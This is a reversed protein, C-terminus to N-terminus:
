GIRLSKRARQKGKNVALESKGKGKKSGSVAGKKLPDDTPPKSGHIFTSLENAKEGIFGIGSDINTQAADTWRGVEDGVVQMSSDLAAGARSAEAMVPQLNTATTTAIESVGESVGTTLAETGTAINDGAINAAETVNSTIPDTVTSAGEAITSGINGAETTVASTTDTVADAVGGLLGGGGGGGGGGKAGGGGGGGCLTLNGTYEFSKSSTEVLKGDIWQYNVETYIKM